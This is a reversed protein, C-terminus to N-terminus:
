HGPEREVVHARMAGFDALEVDKALFGLPLPGVLGKVADSILLEDPGTRALLREVRALPLGDLRDPPDLITCEGADIAIRMPIHAASAETFASQSFRVAAVPSTFWVLLGDGLDNIETGGYDELLRRLSSYHGDRRNAWEVEGLKKRLQTSGVVDTRVVTAVVPGDILRPDAPAPVQDGVVLRNVTLHWGQQALHRLVTRRVALDPWSHLRNSLWRGLFTRLLRRAASGGEHLHELLSSMLEESTSGALSALHEDPIASDRLFTELQAPSYTNGIAAAVEHLTLSAINRGDDEDPDPPDNYVVRGLARERGELTLHIDGIQQLWYHGNTMPDALQGIYRQDNFDLYGSQRALLLEKAFLKADRQPDIPPSTRIKEMLTFGNLLAGSEGNELEHIKRLIQIDDWRM